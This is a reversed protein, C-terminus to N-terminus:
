VPNLGVGMKSALRILCIVVLTLKYKVMLAPVKIKLSFGGFQTIRFAEKVDPMELYQKVTKYCERMPVKIGRVIIELAGLVLTGNYFSFIDINSHKLYETRILGREEVGVIKNRVLKNYDTLGSMLIGKNKIIYNYFVDNM